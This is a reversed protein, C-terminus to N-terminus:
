TEKAERRLKNIRYELWKKDDTLRALERTQRIIEGETEELHIIAEHLELDDIWKRSPLASM